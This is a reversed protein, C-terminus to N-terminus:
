YIEYIRDTVATYNRYRNGSAGGRSPSPKYTEAGEGSVVEVGFYPQSHGGSSHIGFIKIRVVAVQPEDPRKRLWAPPLFEVNWPNLVALGPPLTNTTGRNWLFGDEQHQAVLEDCEQQITAWGGAREVRNMVEQRQARRELSPPPWWGANSLSLFLLAGVLALGGWIWHFVPHARMQRAINASFLACVLRVLFTLAAISCVTSLLHLATRM